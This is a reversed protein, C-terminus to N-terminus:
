KVEIIKNSYVYWLFGQIRSHGMQTLLDMYERVQDHHEEDQRGFKFDIVITQQGDTIVRDPRREQGDPLLITCENYLTWRGDFWEAVRPNEMRKRIMTELRERTIHSDYIIGDLEMQRLAEDIDAATRIHAFVNHLVSGLQIYNAQTQDEDEDQIFDMSKNSQKFVTKQSFVEITVPIVAADHKFPNPEKKKEPKDTDLEPRPYEGYTFVLPGKEDAEGELVAGELRLAPLVQEILASRSSKANRRGFVCLSQSARTFAVYLLNLNDVVIQQHEEDYFNEYVTGKMGKQSFDVPVLPLQNYPTETPHCWLIDSFEMRWDCFPIIVHDFELGKSKHISIIRIGNIDQSQITQGCITTDWDKLFAYIDPTHDNAYAAVQDFFACLYGSQNAMTHLGFIAYLRETLDYLPMQLLATRNDTYEPPLMGDLTGTCVKALFAKSIADDPQILLRLAQIIVQVAPSADLRFAEDSVVTIGTLQKMLYNAILPINANSRMLIAIHRPAIGRQMLQAVESATAELMAQKYDTDNLLRIKVLGTDERSDPWHQEVDDYASVQETKAAEEFFANNFRIINPQSRYNTDLPKIDILQDANQFENKINALLRWDGSRWRYISQKVDGVILNGTGSHSMAEELLVKFNKWQVTSTDQFEDIMIHELRAGIKEFIFPSDSGKILEHLLQQTDSLLFRNSAENLQRVQKEIAGLLRLQSLHRLTLTASQYRLWQRPQEEVAQRLLGDLQSDVLAHIHDARESSKTYWKAPNGVADLVTKTLISEDFQGNRMKVFISCVGRSKNSFDDITLGEDAIIDFFTDAIKKIREAAKAREGRLMQTYNDFFDKENSIANIQRSQQKYFDRFITRGFKKIQWIVNWSRDDSITDMIYKLLWQLLLDTSKLSEILQDVAQEEVQVDNLDVRLNATLDLERALNRLVSQFFSDITEVRFYSYNHLLLQLAIGAQRSAQEPSIDLEACVKESYDKSSEYGRWIGYLQSLIRQKMEATAKNTFTVALTQRFAQPNQVLLKIYEVALTFTKGSGASAEYVILPKVM